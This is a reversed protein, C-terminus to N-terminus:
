RRGRGDGDRPNFAFQVASFVIGNFVVLMVAAIWGIDSGLILIGSGPWTGALGARDHLGGLDPVGFAVSRIYLRVLKPM